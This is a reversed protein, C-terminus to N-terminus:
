HILSRAKSCSHAICVYPAPTDLFYYYNSFIRKSEILIIKKKFTQCFKSNLDEPNTTEKTSIYEVSLETYKTTPSSPKIKQLWKLNV